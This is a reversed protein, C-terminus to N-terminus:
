PRCGLLSWLEQSMQFPPSSIIMQHTGIRRESHRAHLWSLSTALQQRLAVPLTGWGHSRPSGVSSPCRPIHETIRQRRYWSSVKSLSHLSCVGWSIATPPETFIFASPPPSSCSSAAQRSPRILTFGARFSNAPATRIISWIWHSYWLKEVFFVFVRQLISDLLFNKGRNYNFCM